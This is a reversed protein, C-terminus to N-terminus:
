GCHSDVCKGAHILDRFMCVHADRGADHRGAGGGMRFRQRGGVQGAGRWGVVGWSLGGWGECICVYMRPLRM